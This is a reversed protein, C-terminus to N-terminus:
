ETEQYKCMKYGANSLSDGLRKMIGSELLVNTQFEPLKL